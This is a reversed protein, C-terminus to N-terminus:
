TLINQIIRLAILVLIPSLDLGGTSFPILRRFLVLLPETLSYIFQTIQSNLRIPVWSLFVRAIILYQILEFTWFIFTNINPM